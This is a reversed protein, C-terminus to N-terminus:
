RLAAKQEEPGAAAQAQAWAEELRALRVHHDSGIQAVQRELEPKAEPGAQEARRRLQALRGDAQQQMFATLLSLRQATGAEQARVETLRADREAAARALAAEYDAQAAEAAASLTLVDSLAEQYEVELRGEHLVLGGLALMREELRTQGFEAVQAVVASAGLPVQEAAREVAESRYQGEHTEHVAGAVAGSAAGIAVVLPGALLGLLGGAIGGVSM